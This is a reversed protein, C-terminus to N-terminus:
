RNRNKENNISRKRKDDIIKRLIVNIKVWLIKLLKKQMVAFFVITFFSIIYVNCGISILLAQSVALIATVLFAVMNIEFKIYRRVDIMRIFAIIIYAIVTGIVAGWLGVMKIFLYNLVVNIVAASLTTLMNNVSKQLAGYLTGFYSAIASFSTAVLLLPVYKWAPFFDKGVYFAMFLKTVSVLCISAGFCLANYIKFVNSYFSYDNTDEFERVASLGWAQSFISILTNILSPIKTAVTYLGLASETLMLQIMIKDSSHIIWWSVNNLILPSSYKIMQILLSKKFKAKKIDIYLKGFIFLLVAVFSHALINSLLYGIIGIRLVVLLFINLCAIFFTQLISFFAYMRNKNMVKLYTFFISTSMYSIVYGCLYWKYKAIPLYLNFAPTIAVTIISGIVMVIIACLLVNERNENKKLGFRIVADFIVLSVFPMLLESMTYVLEATGYEGTSLVNTYLPVLLFLIVKSGFNGLAFILTDSILTKYKNKKMYKDIM